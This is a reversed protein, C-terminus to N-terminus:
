MKAYTEPKNCVKLARREEDTKLIPWTQGIKFGGEGRPFTHPKAALSDKEVTQHNGGAIMEIKIRQAVCRGAPCQRSHTADNKRGARLSMTEAQRSCRDGCIRQRYQGTPAHGLGVSSVDGFEM